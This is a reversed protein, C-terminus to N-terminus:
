YKMIWEQILVCPILIGISQCRHKASNTDMYEAAIRGGVRVVACLNLVNYDKQISKSNESYKQLVKIGIAIVVSFM